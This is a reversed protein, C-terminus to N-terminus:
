KLLELLDELQSILKHVLHYEVFQLVIGGGFYQRQFENKPFGVGTANQINVNYNGIYFTKWTLIKKKIRRIKPFIYGLFTPRLQFFVIFNIYGRYCFIRVTKNYVKSVSVTINPAIYCCNTGKYKITYKFIYSFFRKQALIRDSHKM